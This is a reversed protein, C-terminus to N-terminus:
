LLLGLRRLSDASALDTTDYMSAAWNANKSLSHHRRGTDAYAESAATGSRDATPGTRSGPLSGAVEATAGSADVGGIETGAEGYQRAVGLLMALDVKM